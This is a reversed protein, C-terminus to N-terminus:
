VRLTKQWVLFEHALEPRSQIYHVCAGPSIAELTQAQIASVGALYSLMLVPRSYILAFALESLTGPGGGVVIVGAGALVNPLNRMHGLGTPLRISSHPNAEQNDTGPLLGISLGGAESHTRAVAEMVGGRGGTVLGLGSSAILAGLEEAAQVADPEPASSGILTVFTQPISDTESM